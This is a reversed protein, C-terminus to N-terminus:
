IYKTYKKEEHVGLKSLISSNMLFERLNMISFKRQSSCTVIRNLMWQNFCTSYLNSYIFKVFKKLILNITEVLYCVSTFNVSPSTRLALLM